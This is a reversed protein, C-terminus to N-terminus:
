PSSRVGCKALATCMHKEVSLTVKVQLEPAYHPNPLKTTIYLHFETGYPVQVDGLKIHPVGKVNVIQQLLLPELAPDLTEQVDELLVWKGFRIANEFSQLFNKDSLKVVDMGMEFKSAGLKKVFKGAQGQPDIMLPWRRSKSMIIGNETSLEDTPLGALNWARIQVADGLTSRINCGESHAITSETLRMRWETTLAHRYAATFAGLYAISAASVLVDGVIHNYTVDLRAVTSEWRVKEGGLGGIRKNARL